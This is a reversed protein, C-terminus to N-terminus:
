AAEQCVKGEDASVDGGRSRHTMHLCVDTRHRKTADNKLNLDGSMLFHLHIEGIM